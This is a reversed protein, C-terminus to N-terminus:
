DTRAAVGMRANFDDFLVALELNRSQHAANDVIHLRCVCVGRRTPNTVRM